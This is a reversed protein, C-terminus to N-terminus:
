NWGSPWCRHEAVVKATGADWVNFLVIPDGKIHLRQFIEANQIQTPM